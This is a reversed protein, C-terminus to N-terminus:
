KCVTMNLAFRNLCDWTKIKLNIQITDFLAVARYNCLFQGLISMWKGSCILSIWSCEESWSGYETRITLLAKYRTNGTSRTWHRKDARDHRRTMQSATKNWVAALRTQIYAAVKFHKVFTVRVSRQDRNVRWMWSDRVCACACTCACVCMCVCVCM